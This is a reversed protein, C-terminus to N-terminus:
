YSLNDKFITKDKLATVKSGDSVEECGIQIKDAAMSSSLKAFCSRTPNKFIVEPYVSLPISSGNSLQTVKTCYRSDDIEICFTKGISFFSKLLSDNLLVVARGKTDTNIKEFGQATEDFGVTAGAIPVIDGNSREEM